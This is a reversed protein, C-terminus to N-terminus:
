GPCPRLGRAGGGRLVAAHGDLPPSAALRRRAADAGEPCARRRACATRARCGWDSRFCASETTWDRRTRLTVGQIQSSSRWTVGSDAFTSRHDVIAHLPDRERGGHEARPDHEEVARDDVDRQRRDRVIEVGSEDLLLPDDLGVQEREARQQEDPSREPVDEPPPADERRSQCQEAGRRQEARHRRAGLQQDCRPRELARRARQEHGRAECQDGRRERTVLAARRDAGPRCPGADGEDDARETAAGDDLVDRPAPDERDVHREDEGREHERARAHALADVLLRRLSDVVETRQEHREPEAARHERQDLLLGVAPAVREDVDRQDRPDRQERREHHV